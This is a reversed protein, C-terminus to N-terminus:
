LYIFLFKLHITKYKLTTKLIHKVICTKLGIKLYEKKSWIKKHESHSPEHSIVTYHFSKLIEKTYSDTYSFNIFFVVVVFCKSLPSSCQQLVLHFEPFHPELLVNWYFYEFLMWLCKSIFLRLMICFSGRGMGLALKWHACSGQMRLYCHRFGYFKHQPVCYVREDIIYSEREVCM